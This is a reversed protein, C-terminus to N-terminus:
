SSNQINYRECLLSYEEQSIFKDVFLEKISSTKEKEDKLLNLLEDLHILFEDFSISGKAKLKGLDIVGKSGSTCFGVCYTEHGDSDKPIIPKKMLMELDIALDPNKEIKDVYFKYIENYLRCNFDPKSNDEDFKLLWYNEDASRDFIARFQDFFYKDVSSDTVRFVPYTPTVNRGLYFGIYTNCGEPHLTEDNDTVKHYAIHNPQDFLHVNFTVHSANPEFEVEGLKQYLEVTLGISKGIDGLVDVENRQESQAIMNLYGVRPDLFLININSGSQFKEVLSKVIGGAEIIPRDNNMRNLVARGSLYINQPRKILWHSYGEFGHRQDRVKIIHCKLESRLIERSRKSFQDMLEVQETSRIAIEHFLSAVGTIIVALGMRNFLEDEAISFRLTIIMGITIMLLSFFVRLIFGTKINKYPM